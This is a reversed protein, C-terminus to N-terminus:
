CIKNDGIEFRLEKARLYLFCVKCLFSLNYHDDVKPWRQDLVSKEWDISPLDLGVRNPASLFGSWLESSFHPTVPSLMIILSALALEFEKSHAIVEPPM